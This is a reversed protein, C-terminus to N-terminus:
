CLIYWVASFQDEFAKWKPPFCIHAFMKATSGSVIYLGAESIPVSQGASLGTPEGEPVTCTCKVKTGYTCNQGGSSYDEDEILISGNTLIPKVAGQYNYLTNPSGITNSPENLYSANLKIPASMATDCINPGLLTVATGNVTAGNAGVGFHSVTYSRLDPAGATNFLKQAVFSRGQAVILNNGEFVKNGSILTKTEPDVQSNLYIQVWGVPGRKTGQQKSLSDFIQYDEKAFITENGM